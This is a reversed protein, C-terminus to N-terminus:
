PLGQETLPGTHERYALINVTLWTRIRYHGERYAMNQCHVQPGTHERYAM